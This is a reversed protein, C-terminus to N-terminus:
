NFFPRMFSELGLGYSIARVTIPKVMSNNLENLEMVEGAPDVQAKSNIQAYQSQYGEYRCTLMKEGRAALGELRWACGPNEYNEGPLWIVKFPGCKGDGANYVVIRVTVAAAKVPEAPIISMQSILLDPGAAGAVPFLLFIAMWIFIITGPIKM